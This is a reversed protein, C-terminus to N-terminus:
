AGAAKPAAAPAQRIESSVRRGQRPDLDFVVRGDKVEGKLPVEYDGTPLVEQESRCYYSFKQPFDCGPLHAYAEAMTYPKGAGSTGSRYTCSATISVKITVNSM